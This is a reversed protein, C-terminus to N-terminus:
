TKLIDLIMTMMYGIIMGIYIMTRNYVTPQPMITKMQQPTSQRPTKEFDWPSSSYVDDFQAWSTMGLFMLLSISCKAYNLRQIIM